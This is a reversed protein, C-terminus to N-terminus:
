WGVRVFGPLLRRWWLLLGLLTLLSIALGFLVSKPRYLFEVDHEGAALTVGRLNYNVRLTEVARGDVYARWGPYHNESLVLVTPVSSKTKMAIRNPEHSTVEVRASGDGANSKFETSDEILVLRSPEWTKGDPLRATRIVELIASEKLVLAETALWARPLARLNEFIAVNGIQSVQRWREKKEPVIAAQEGANIGGKRAAGTATKGSGPDTTRTTTRERAAIATAASKTLERSFWERRLPFYKNAAQDFLSIRLVDLLL